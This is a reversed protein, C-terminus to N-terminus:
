QLLIIPMKAKRAADPTFVGRGNAIVVTMKRGQPTVGFNELRIKGPAARELRKLYSLTEAYSPTARFQSAEAPTTWDAAASNRGSLLLLLFTLILARMKSRRQLYFRIDRCSDHPGM